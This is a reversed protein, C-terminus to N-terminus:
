GRKRTPEPVLLPELVNIIRHQATMLDDHTVAKGQAIEVLEHLLVHLLEHVATQELLNDTVPQSKWNSGLRIVAQLQPLDFKAVEAMSTKTPRPSLVIRWGQLGLKVQWAKIHGDFRIADAPTVLHDGVRAAM